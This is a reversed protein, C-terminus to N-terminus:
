ATAEEKAPKEEEKPADKKATAPKHPPKPAFVLVTVAGVIVLFLSIFFPTTVFAATSEHLITVLTNVVPAGGFVLPMVYLPKGGFNFAFIIGLSGIAGVAGGILSWITGGVTWGGPEPMAPLLMLPVLVAIAFYALGVCLFPRMRSGSMKMQGKHLLPGYAGWCVVTLAISLPIQVFKQLYTLPEQKQYLKYAKAYKDVTQLEELSSPEWKEEREGGSIREKLVIKLSGDNFKDVTINKAQPKFYVVGAAGIAVVVVGALFIPNAEKFTKNLWMTVLVNVVPAGGFVLPMVYVPSGRSKFALLIGLAGLTTIIGAAASWALGETTWKGSEGTTRLLVIPVIVAILFYALGVCIFARLSSPELPAGLEAQGEHLVPGYVGWCFFTLAVFSLVVLFSRM